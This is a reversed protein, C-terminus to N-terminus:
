GGRVTSRYIARPRRLFGLNKRKKGNWAAGDGLDGWPSKQAEGDTKTTSLHMPNSEEGLVGEGEFRGSIECSIWRYLKEFDRIESREIHTTGPSKRRDFAEDLVKSCMGIIKNRKM